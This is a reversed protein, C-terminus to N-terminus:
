GNPLKRCYTPTQAHCNPCLLRLNELRHDRNNGNIHDTQLPIPQGMWETRNCIECIHSKLGEAILRQKLHSTQYTSNEVLIDKIDIKVPHHQRKGVWSQGNFHSTDLKLLAIYKHMTTYNGPRATLGLSRLVEAISDAQAVAQVLQADTWKRRGRRVNM